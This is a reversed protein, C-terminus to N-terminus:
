AEMNEDGGDSGEDSSTGEEGEFSDLGDFQPVEDTLYLVAKPIISDRFTLALEYDKEMVAEEDEGMEDSYVKEASDFFEFFSPVGGPSRILEGHIDRKGGSASTARIWDIPDAKTSKLVPGDYDIPMDSDPSSVMVYAKKLVRNTFYPNEKFHFSLTFGLDNEHLDSTVDILHKLIELDEGQLLEEVEYCNLMADLWFEPIGKVDDLGKPMMKELKEMDEATMGHFIPADCEDDKPEHEGIVIDKRKKNIQQFLPQYEKELENLRVHFKSELNIEEVQLKKLAKVRRLVSPPQGLFEIRSGSMKALGGDNDGEKTM